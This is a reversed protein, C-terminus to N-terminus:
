RMVHFGKSDEMAVWARYGFRGKKTTEKAPTALDLMATTWHCEIENRAAWSKSASQRVLARRQRPGKRESKPLFADVSLAGFLLLSVAASLADHAAEPDSLWCGSMSGGGVSGEGGKRPTNLAVSVGVM